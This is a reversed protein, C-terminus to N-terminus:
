SPSPSRPHTDNLQIAFKKHFSELPIKQGKLIRLMDQLSCSVFFYQQELRLEKGQIQRRESVAGQDFKGLRSKASRRRYYDGRNFISLNFFRAGRGAM